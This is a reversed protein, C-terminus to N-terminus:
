AVEKLLEPQSEMLTYEWCKPTIKRREIRYGKKPLDSSLLRRYECAVHLDTAFDITKLKNQNAHFKDILYKWQEKM